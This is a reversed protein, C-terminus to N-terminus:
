TIDRLQMKHEVGPFAHMFLRRYMSDEDLRSVVATEHGKVGLEINKENFLPNRMQQQLTLLATDASTLRELFALNFLPQANRQHLDATAGQSRRYGDTFAFRPDHCSACSRTNNFSLRRDFFLYRGLEIKAANTNNLMAAPITVGPPLLSNYDDGNKKHSTICATIILMLLVFFSVAPKL